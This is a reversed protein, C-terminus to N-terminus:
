DLLRAAWDLVDERPFGSEEALEKILICCAAISTPTDAEGDDLTARLDKATTNADDMDVIM